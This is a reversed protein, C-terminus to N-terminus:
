ERYVVILEPPRAAPMAGCFNVMQEQPGRDVKECWCRPTNPWRGKVVLNPICKKVGVSWMQDVSPHPPGADETRRLSYINASARWAWQSREIDAESVWVVVVCRGTWIGGLARERVLFTRVCPLSSGRRSTATSCRRSDRGVDAGRVNVVVNSGHFFRPRVAWYNSKDPQM